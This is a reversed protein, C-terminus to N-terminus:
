KLSNREEAVADAESSETSVEDFNSERESEDLDLADSMYDDSFAGDRNM